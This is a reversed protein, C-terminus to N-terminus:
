RQSWAVWGEVWLGPQRETITFGDESFAEVVFAAEGHCCVAAPLVSADISLSCPRTLELRWPRGKTPFSRRGSETTFGVQQAPRFPPMSRMRHLRALRVPQHAAANLAWSTLWVATASLLLLSVAATATDKAIPSFTM